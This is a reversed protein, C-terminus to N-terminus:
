HNEDVIEWDACFFEDCDMRVLKRSSLRPTKFYIAQHYDSLRYVTDDYKRKVQKGMRMAVLADEFKM